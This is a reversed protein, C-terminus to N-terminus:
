SFVRGPGRDFNKVIGYGEKQNQFLVPPGRRVARAYVEIHTSPIESPQTM